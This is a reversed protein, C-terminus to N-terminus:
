FLVSTLYSIQHLPRISPRKVGPSELDHGPGSFGEAGDDDIRKVDWPGLWFTEGSPLRLLQSDSDPADELTANNTRILENFAEVVIARDLTPSNESLPNEDGASTAKYGVNRKTDNQSM